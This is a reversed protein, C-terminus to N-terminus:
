AAASAINGSEGIRSKRPLYKAMEGGGSSSPLAANENCNSAGSSRRYKSGGGAWHLPLCAPLTAHAAPLCTRLTTCHHTCHTHAAFCLAHACHMRWTTRLLLLHCYLLPLLLYATHITARPPLTTHHYHRHHPLHRTAHLTTHTTHHPLLPILDEEM